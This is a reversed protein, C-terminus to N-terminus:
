LDLKWRALAELGDESVGTNGTSELLSQAQAMAPAVKADFEEQEHAKMESEKEAKKKAIFKKELERM